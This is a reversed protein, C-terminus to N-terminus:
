SPTNVKVGSGLAFPAVTKCTLIESPTVSGTSKSMGTWTAGNVIRNHCIIGHPINRHKFIFGNGLDIPNQKHYRRHDVIKPSQIVTMLFMKAMM